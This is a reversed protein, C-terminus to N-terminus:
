ELTITEEAEFGAKLDLEKYYMVEEPQIRKSFNGNDWLANNNTDRFVRLFYKGPVLNTISLKFSDRVSYIACYPNDIGKLQLYANKFEAIKETISLDSVQDQSLIYISQTLSDNTNGYIDRLIGNPIIIVFLGETGPYAILSFNDLFTFRTKIASTDHYTIIKGPFSTLTDLPRNFRIIIPNLPAQKPFNNVFFIKEKEPSTKITFPYDKAKYRYLFHASDKPNLATFLIYKNLGPCGSTDPKWFLTTTKDNNFDLQYFQEPRTESELEVTYYGSQTSSLNLIHNEKHEPEKFLSLPQLDQNANIEVDSSKFALQEGEEWTMNKNQDEFAFVYYTGPSINDISFYGSQDTMGFYAIDSKLFATDNIEKKKLVVTINKLPILNEGNRVMGKLKITDITSGTSFVYIFSKITNGETVDAFSESAKITYTTNPQLDGLKVSITKHNAEAVPPQKLPPSISISKQADKIQVFENFTISIKKANFNTTSDKPNSSVAFPPSTDKVGGQPSVINACSYAMIVLIFFVKNHSSCM